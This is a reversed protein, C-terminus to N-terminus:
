DEQSVGLSARGAATIVYAGPHGDAPTLLGKEELRVVVTFLSAADWIRPRGDAYTGLLRMEDEDLVM